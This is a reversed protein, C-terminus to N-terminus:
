RDHVGREVRLRQDSSINLQGTSNITTMTGNTTFSTFYLPSGTINMSSGVLQITASGAGNIIYLYNGGPSRYTLASVTGSGCDLTYSPNTVGIGVNYGTATGSSNVCFNMPGASNYMRVESGTNYMQFNNGPSSTTFTFGSTSIDSRIIGNAQFTNSTTGGQVQLATGPYTIGIGVNGGSTIRM